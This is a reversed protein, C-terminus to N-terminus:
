GYGADRAVGGIARQGEGTHTLVPQLQVLSLWCWALSPPLFAGPNTLLAPTVCFPVVGPKAWDGRYETCGQDTVQAWVHQALSHCQGECCRAPAFLMGPSIRDAPQKSDEAESGM